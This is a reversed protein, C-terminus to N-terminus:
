IDGEKRSNILDLSICTRVYVIYNRTVPPRNNMDAVSSSVLNTFPVPISWTVYIRIINLHSITRALMLRTEECCELRGRLMANKMYVRTRQRMWRYGLEPLFAMLRDVTSPSTISICGAAFPRGFHYAGTGVLEPSGSSALCIM